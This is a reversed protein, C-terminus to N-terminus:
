LMAAKKKAERSAKVKRMGIVIEKLRTDKISRKSRNFMMRYEGLSEDAREHAATMAKFRSAYQALKSELIIESIIITTMFYELREVVESTNPEFIHTDENIVEDNLIQEMSAEGKDALARSINMKKVNQVSLSQYS